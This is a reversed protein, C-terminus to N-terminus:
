KAKANSNVCTDVITVPLDTTVTAMAKRRQRKMELLQKRQAERKLSAASNQQLDKSGNIIGYNNKGTAKVQLVEIKESKITKGIVPDINASEPVRKWKNAKLIEIDAFVSDLHEVQLYVLDWFGQLDDVTTPFKDELSRNLNNHCLGEFQKMKQTVLLRAKGSASRLLGFTDETIDPNTSLADAYKEALAALALLRMQEDKLIHLFYNGDKVAESLKKEASVYEEPTLAVLQAPKHDVEDIPGFDPRLESGQVAPVIGSRACGRKPSVAPLQARFEVSLHKFVPLEINGSSDSLFHDAMRATANQLCNHRLKKRFEGYDKSPSLQKVKGALESDQPSEMERQRIESRVAGHSSLSIHKKPSYFGQALAGPGYLREVRQKIFSGNENSHASEMGNVGNFDNTNNSEVFNGKKTPFPMSHLMPAVLTHSHQCYHLSSTSPRIPSVERSNNINQRVKSDYTTLNSYGNVCCALSLYSPKKDAAQSNGVTTNAYSSSERTSEDSEPSLVMRVLDPSGSGVYSSTSQQTQQPSRLVCRERFNVTFERTINKVSFPTPFSISSSAASKDTSDADADLSCSGMSDLSRDM